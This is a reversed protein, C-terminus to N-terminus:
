TKEVSDSQEDSETSSDDSPIDKAETPTEHPQNKRIKEPNKTERKKPAPVDVWGPLQIGESQFLRAIRVSPQAGNKLYFEAKTSDIKAEKTHPNYNGLLAVVKGSSPSKRSEQVIVRYQANGKRGTRQMRIALM